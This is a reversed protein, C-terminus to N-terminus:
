AIVGGRADAVELRSDRAISAALGERYLHVDSVIVVRPRAEADAPVPERVDLDPYSQDM